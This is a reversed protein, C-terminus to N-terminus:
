NWSGEHMAVLWALGKNGRISLMAASVGDGVLLSLMGLEDAVRHAGARLRGCEGTDEYPRPKDTGM